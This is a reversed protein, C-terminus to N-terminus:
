RRAKAVRQMRSVLAEASAQMRARGAAMREVFDAKEAGHLKERKGKKSKRAPNQLSKAARKAAARRAQARKFALPEPAGLVGEGGAHYKLNRLVSKKVYKVKGTSLNRLAYTGENVSVSQKEQTGCGSVEYANDGLYVTRGQYANNRESVRTCTASPNRLSLPERKVRRTILRYPGRGWSRYEKLEALAQKRADGEYETVDEWGYGYRNSQIVFEEVAKSVRKKTPM